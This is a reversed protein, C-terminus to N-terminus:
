GWVNRVIRIRQVVSEVAAELSAQAGREVVLGLALIALLMLALGLAYGALQSGGIASGFRGLAGGVL